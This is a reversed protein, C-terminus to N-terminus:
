RRSLTRKSSRIRKTFSLPREHDKPVGVPFDIEVQADQAAPGVPIVLDGGEHPFYVQAVLHDEFRPTPPDDKVTGPRTKRFVPSVDHDPGGGEKKRRHSPRHVHLHREPLANGHGGAEAPSARVPRHGKEDQVFKESIGEIGTLQGSQAGPDAGVDGKETRSFPRRPKRCRPADRLPPFGTM